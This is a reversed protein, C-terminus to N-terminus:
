PLSREVDIDFWSGLRGRPSDFTVKARWTMTDNTCIGLQGQGHFHGAEGAGLAFRNLGMDMDVGEFSISVRSAAVGDIAVDLPLPALPRIKGDVAIELTLREGEGLATSCPGAHLNCATPAPPYWTVPDPDSLEHRLLYWLTVALTVLTVLILLRLRPRRTSRSSPLRRSLM